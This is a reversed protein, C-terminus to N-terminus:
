ILFPAMDVCDAGGEASDGGASDADGVWFIDSGANVAM